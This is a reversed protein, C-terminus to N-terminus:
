NSVKKYQIIEDSYKRFGILYKKISCQRMLKGSKVEQEAEILLKEPTGATLETFHKIALL